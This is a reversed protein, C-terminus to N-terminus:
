QNLWPQRNWRKVIKEVGIYIQSRDVTHTGQPRMDRLGQIYSEAYRHLTTLTYRESKKVMIEDFDKELIGVCLFEYYNLCERLGKQWSQYEESNVSPYRNDKVYPRIVTLAKQLIDDKLMASM